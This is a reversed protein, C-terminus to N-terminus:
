FEDRVCLSQVQPACIFEKHHCFEYEAVELNIMTSGM